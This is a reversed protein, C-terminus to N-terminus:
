GVILAAAATLRDAMGEYSGYGMGAHVMAGTFLMELAALVEGDADPGLAADLRQHIATGILNRLHRVDPDTGLMATTCAAALAPEDSVLLALERLVAVARDAPSGDQARVPPLSQLRRWFVETILHNKSGFYTYATAPAVGARHAVNRVTLGEYGASRLEEVAAETLRRVLDAQRQSLQRRTPETALSPESMHGSVLEPRMPQCAGARRQLSSDPCNDSYKAWASALWHCWGFRSRDGAPVVAGAMQLLQPGIRDSEHAPDPRLAPVHPLEPEAAAADDQEGASLGVLGEEASRVVSRSWASAYGNM